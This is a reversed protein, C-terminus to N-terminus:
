CLLAGDRKLLAADLRPDSLVRSAELPPTSVPLSHHRTSFSTYFKNDSKIQTRNSCVFDSMCFVHACPLADAILIMRTPEIFDLLILKKIESAYRKPETLQKPHINLPVM